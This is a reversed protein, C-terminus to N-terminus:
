STPLLVIRDHEDAVDLVAERAALDAPVFLRVGGADMTEDGQEAEEVFGTRVEEGRMGRAVSVRIAVREPDMRGAELARKLVQAARPTVTLPM